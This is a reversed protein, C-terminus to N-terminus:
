PGSGSQFYQRILAAWEPTQPLSGFLTGTQKNSVDEPSPRSVSPTSGGFLDPIQFEDSEPPPGAQSM